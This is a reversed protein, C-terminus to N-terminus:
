SRSSNLWRARRKELSDILGRMPALTSFEIVTRVEAPVSVAKQLMLDLVRHEFSALNGYYGALERAREPTVASRRESDNPLRVAWDGSSRDSM